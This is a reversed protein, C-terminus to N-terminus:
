ARDSKSDNPTRITQKIANRTGTIAIFMAIIGVLIAAFTWGYEVWVGAGLSALGCLFLIDWFISM